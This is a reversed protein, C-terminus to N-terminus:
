RSLFQLICEEQIPKRIIELGLERAKEPLEPRTSGSVIAIRARPAYELLDPALYIGDVGPMEVDLTIYDVERERVQKLAALADSAQIVQWDPHHEVVIAAILGRIAASDDIILLTRNM